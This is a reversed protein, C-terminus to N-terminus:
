SLDTEKARSGKVELCSGLGEFRNLASMVVM